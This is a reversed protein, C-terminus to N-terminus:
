VKPMTPTDSVAKLESPIDAWPKHIFEPIKGCSDCKMMPVELISDRAEGSLLKSIRKVMILQTFTVGGCECEMWPSDMIAKQQTPNM